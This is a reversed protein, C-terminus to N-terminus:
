VHARGIKQWDSAVGVPMSGAQAEASGDARLRAVIIAGSVPNVLRIDDGIAGNQMARLTAALVLGDSVLSVRVMGGRRVLPLRVTDRPRVPQGAELPRRLTLGILTSPDHAYDDQDRGVPQIVSAIRVDAAGVTEGGQMDHAAVVVPVDRGVHGSLRFTRPDGSGDDIQVVISFLGHASDFSVQQASLDSHGDVAVMPADYTAPQLHADSPAGAAILADRLVKDIEAATVVRGPRSLTLRAAQVPAWDVGYQNAIAALQQAGIVISRGPVPAPGLDSEQGAELGDFLDSLHVTAGRVVGTSSRFLM